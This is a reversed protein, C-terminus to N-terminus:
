LDGIELPNTSGCARVHTVIEVHGDAVADVARRTDYEVSKPDQHIVSHIIDADADKYGAYSQAALWSRPQAADHGSTIPPVFAISLKVDPRIDNLHKRVETLVGRVANIRFRLLDLVWPHDVLLLPVGTDGLLEYGRANLVHQSMKMFEACLMIAKQRCEQLDIGDVAAAATCHPCCCISAMTRVVPDLRGGAMCESEICHQPIKDLMLEDIEYRGAIESCVRFTYERVEPNNFCLFLRDASGYLNQIAWQPHSKALLGSAFSTLWAGPSIGAKRAGHVAEALLDRGDFDTSPTPQVPLDRYRHSEPLFFYKGEEMSYLAKQPYRPMLMRYPAYIMTCFLLRNTGMRSMETYCSEGEVALSPPFQCIWRSDNSFDM